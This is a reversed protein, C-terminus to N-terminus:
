LRIESERVGRGASANVYHQRSYGKGFVAEIRIDPTQRAMM